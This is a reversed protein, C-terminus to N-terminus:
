LRTVQCRVKVSKKKLDTLIHRFSPYWRRITEWSVCKCYIWLRSIHSSLSHYRFHLFHTKKLNSPHQSLYWVTITVTCEIPPELGWTWGRAEPQKIGSHSEVYSHGWVFEMSLHKLHPLDCYLQGPEQFLTSEEDMWPHISPDQCCSKLIM